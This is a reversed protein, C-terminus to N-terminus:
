QALGTTREQLWAVDPNNPCFSSHSFSTGPVMTPNTRPDVWKKFHAHGDAFGLVAGHNHRSAPLDVLSTTAGQNVMDVAFWGDNISDEREDIFVWTDSPGPHILDSMKFNLKYFPPAAPQMWDRTMFGVWGNMSLSRTRSYAGGNFEIVSKDSPCHYIKASKTYPGLSGFQAYQEGVIYDTNTSEDVSVPDNNFSMIGAVWAPNDFDKGENGFDSNPALYDTFDTSYMAWALQMQKFNNVCGATQARAKATALVPLLLSALISIIAIVVLLEILTFAGGAASALSLGGARRRPNRRGAARLGPKSAAPRLFKDSRQNM